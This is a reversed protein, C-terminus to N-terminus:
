SAPRRQRRDDLRLGAVWCKEHLTSLFREADTGDKIMVYGHVGSSGALAEGTDTRVLGASTSSRIVHGVSGLVPLVSVLAPWFGGLEKIREAVEVPMGKTDYDLLM